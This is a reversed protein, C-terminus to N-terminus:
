KYFVRVPTLWDLLGVWEYSYVGRVVGGRDDVTPIRDVRCLLM